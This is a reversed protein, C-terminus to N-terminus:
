GRKLGEEIEGSSVVVMFFVIRVVTPRANIARVGM